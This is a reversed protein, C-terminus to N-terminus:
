ATHRQTGAVRDLHQGADVVQKVAAVGAADDDIVAVLAKILGTRRAAAQQRQAPLVPISSTCAKSSVPQIAWRRQMSCAVSPAAAAAAVQSGPLAPAASAASGNSPSGKLNNWYGASFFYNRPAAARVWNSARIRASPGANASSGIFMGMVTAASKGPTCRSSTSTSRLEMRLTNASCGSSASGVMLKRKLSSCAEGARARTSVAPPSHCTPPANTSEASPPQVRKCVPHGGCRLSVGAGPQATQLRHCTPLPQPRCRAAELQGGHHGAVARHMLALAAQLLGTGVQLPQVGAKGAPGRLAPLHVLHQTGCRGLRKCTPGDPRRFVGAVHGVKIRTILM